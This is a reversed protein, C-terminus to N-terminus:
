DRADRRAWSACVEPTEPCYQEGREIIRRIRIEHTCLGMHGYRGPGSIEADITLEMGVLENRPPRQVSLLEVSEEALCWDQDRPQGASFRNHEFGYSFSGTLRRRETPQACAAAALVLALAVVRM